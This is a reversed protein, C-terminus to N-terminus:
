LIAEDDFMSASDASPVYGLRKGTRLASSSSKEQIEGVTVQRVADFPPTFLDFSVAFIVLENVIDALQEKSIPTESFTAYKYAIQPIRTEVFFKKERNVFVRAILYGLDNLRSYKFSDALFNYISIIGCYSNYDNNKVYSTKYMPHSPDFEFVNSHMEFDLMDGAVKLQMSQLSLDKFFIGVRKDVNSIKESLDDASEKLVDKLENFVTITNTYVDQKMVSKEALLKLITDKQKQQQENM